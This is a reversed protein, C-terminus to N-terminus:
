DECKDDRKEDLSVIHIQSILEKRMILVFKQKEDSHDLRFSHFEELFFVFFPKPRMM